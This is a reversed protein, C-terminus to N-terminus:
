RNEVERARGRDAFRKPPCQATRVRATAKVGGGRERKGRTVKSVCLHTVGM